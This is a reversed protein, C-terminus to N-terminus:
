ITDKLTKIYRQSVLAPFDLGELYLKYGQSSGKIETIHNTNIIFTRHCRIIFDYEKVTEEARKLSSRVLHNKIGNKNKYYIEIYNDASKILILAHPSITLDDKQYDSKFHVFDEGPNKNELLKKNLKNASDLYSKLLRSQNITILVSVPLFGLLIIRGIDLFTIDMVGFLESYFLFDLGSIALMIWLNWFIEKKINWRGSYFIKPFLSPVILLNLSLILFTSLALGSIFYFIQKASLATIEIPQFVLLFALIGISIFLVVKANHKLDDNFPYPKNLFKLM